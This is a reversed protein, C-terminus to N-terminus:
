LDMDLSELKEIWKENKRRKFKEKRKEFESDNEFSKLRRKRKRQGTRKM